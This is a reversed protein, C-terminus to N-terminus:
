GAAVSPAPAAASTPLLDPPVPRRAALGFYVGALITIVAGVMFVSDLRGIHVGLVNADVRRLVTSVLVGALGISVISGLRNAPQVVAFVRGRYERPVANIIVPVLAANLAGVSLGALGLVVAAVAVSETRAYAFFFLGFGILSATTVRVHGLKDSVFGGFLAGLVAGLGFAGELIGFWRATSHLNETVFYVNLAAVAGAGVNIVIATVLSARILPHRRMLRLGARFEQGVSTEGAGTPAEAAIPDLSVAAQEELAAEIADNESARTRSARPVPAPRVSRIAVYSVVFSVANVTIAWQVGVTVLLPAALPPGIIGAISMASQSYSTARGLYESPVVDAIVITRAPSFFQAAATALLVVVAVLALTIALSIRAGLAAVVVLGAILIARLGDAQLMTRWKDWRDVFVGAIPGLLVVVAATLVLIASSAMPAYSNGALLVTGIWLLLTTDFVQDGVLSVAQGFWLRRFNRNILV